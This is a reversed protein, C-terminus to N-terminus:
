TTSATKQKRINLYGCAQDPCRYLESTVRCDESLETQCYVCASERVEGANRYLFPHDTPVTERTDQQKSTVISIEGGNTELRANNEDLLWCMGMGIFFGSLHCMWGVGPESPDSTLHGVYQFFLWLSGFAWAPMFFTIPRFWLFMLMRFKTFMGFKLLYAGLLGSIAGSAGICPIASNFDVAAQAVGSLLGVGLYLPVFRQWGLSAELSWMVTWMFLMNGLLHMFDGHIFMSTVLGVIKGSALEEPVCGWQMFFEHLTQLSPDDVELQFTYIWVYVNIIMLAFGGLPLHDKEVNDSLPILM